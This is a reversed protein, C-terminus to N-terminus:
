IELSAEWNEPLAGLIARFHPAPAPCALPLSLRHMHLPAWKKTQLLAVSWRRIHSDTKGVLPSLEGSEAWRGAPRGKGRCGLDRLWREMGWSVGPVPSPGNAEGM